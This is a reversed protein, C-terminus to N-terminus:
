SLEILGLEHKLEEFRSECLPKTFIDGLRKDSSIYKTNDCMIPIENEEVEYDRVEQRMWLVQACCIQAVIYERRVTSTAISNQKNNFWSILRNGLMQCTGLYKKEFEVDLSLRTSYGILKFGCEKPYWLGVEQSRKLYRLIRKTAIMHSEKPASQFRSCVGVVFTIDAESTKWVFKKMLDRTYKTRSIFTGDKVAKVQLGLFFTLEGMMSM